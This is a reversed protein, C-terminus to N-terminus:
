FDEDDFLPPPLDPDEYVAPHLTIQGTVLDRATDLGHIFNSPIKNKVCSTKLIELDEAIQKRTERAGQLYVESEEPHRM